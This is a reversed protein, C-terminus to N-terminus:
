EGINYTSDCSPCILHDITYPEDGKVEKVKELGCHPCLDEEKM